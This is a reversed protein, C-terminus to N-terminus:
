KKTYIFTSDNHQVGSVSMDVVSCYFFDNERLTSSEKEMLSLTCEDGVRGDVM